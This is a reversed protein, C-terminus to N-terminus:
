QFVAGERERGSKGFCRNNGGKEATRLPRNSNNLQQLVNTNANSQKAKSRGGGAVVAEGHGGREKKECHHRIM